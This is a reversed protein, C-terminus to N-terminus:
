QHRSSGKGLLARAVELVLLLLQTLAVGVHGLADAPWLFDAVRKHERDGGDMHLAHVVGM